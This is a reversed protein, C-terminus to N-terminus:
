AGFGERGSKYFAAPIQLLPIVTDAFKEPACGKV